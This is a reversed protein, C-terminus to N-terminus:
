CGKVCSGIGGLLTAASDGTSRSRQTTTSSSHAASATAGPSPQPSAVPASPPSQAPVSSQAVTRTVSTVASPATSYHIAPSYPGPTRRNGHRTTRRPVVDRAHTRRTAKATIHTKAIATGIERVSAGTLTRAGASTHASPATKTVPAPTSPSRASQNSLIVIPTTLGALGLILITSFRRTRYSRTRATTAHLSSADDDTADVPRPGPKTTEDEDATPNDDSTPTLSQDASAGLRNSGAATDPDADIEEQQRSPAALNFTDARSPREAVPVRPIALSGANHTDWDDGDDIVPPPELPTRHRLQLISNRRPEESDGRTLDFDGGIGMGNAVM